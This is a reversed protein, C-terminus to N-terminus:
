AAAPAPDFAAAAVRPVEVVPVVDVSGLDDPLDPPLTFAADTFLFIRRATPDGGLAKTSAAGM